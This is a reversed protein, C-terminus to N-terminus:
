SQVMWLEAHNRAINQTIDIIYGESITAEEDPISGHNYEPGNPRRSKTNRRIATNTSDKSIPGILQKDSSAVRGPNSNSAGFTAPSTTM